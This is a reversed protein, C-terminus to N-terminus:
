ASGLPTIREKTFVSSRKSTIPTLPAVACFVAGLRASRLRAAVQRAHRATPFLGFYSSGSGSLQHARCGQKAFWAALRDVWPTLEAAPPQLRNHLRVRSCDGAQLQTILPASRIPPAGPRCRRYVDATSLGVPPKVGVIHLPPLRVPDIQEGRGRCVAAGGTFFFPIDSGLQTSLEALREHPWHLSWAHNAALLAAAADASGGGLGAQAPISKALWLDAGMPCDATRQLLKLARVVLNQAPEPLPSWIEPGEAAGLRWRCALRIAGGAQCKFWLTDCHSITAMLTELEHYGDPRRATVELHLNVKAPAHVCVGSEVATVYM